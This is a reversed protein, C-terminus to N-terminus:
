FLVDIFPLFFDKKKRYLITKSLFRFNNENSRIDINYDIM